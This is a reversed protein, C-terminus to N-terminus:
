NDFFERAKRSIEESDAVLQVYEGLTLGALDALFSMSEKLRKRDVMQKGEETELYEFISRIWKKENVRKHVLWINSPESGAVLKSLSIVHDIQQDDGLPLNSLMCRGGAFEVLRDYDERSFDAILGYEKARDNQKAILRTIRGKQNYERQTKQYCGRCQSRLMGNAYRQFGEALKLEHCKSCERQVEKNTFENVLSLTGVRNERIKYRNM